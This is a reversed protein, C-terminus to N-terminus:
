QTLCTVDADVRLDPAKLAVAINLGRKPRIEKGCHHAMGYVIFTPGVQLFDVTGMEM